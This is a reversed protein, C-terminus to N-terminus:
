PSTPRLTERAVQKLSHPSTNCGDVKTHHNSIRAAIFMRTMAVLFDPPSRWCGSGPQSSNEKGHPYDISDENSTFHVKSQKVLSCKASLVDLSM